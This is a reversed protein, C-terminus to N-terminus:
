LVLQHLVHFHDAIRILPPFAYIARLSSLTFSNSSRTTVIFRIALTTFPPRRKRKEASTITPSLFPRTPKPVPLACSTGSAILFATSAALFSKISTGITSSIPLADHLSL